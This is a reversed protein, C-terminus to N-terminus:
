SLTLNDSPGMLGSNLLENTQSIGIMDIRTDVKVASTPVSIGAGLSLNWSPVEATPAFKDSNDDAGGGTRLVPLARTLENKLIESDAYARIVSMRGYDALAGSVSRKFDNYVYFMKVSIMVGVEASNVTITPFLTEGFEDQRSSLLNYIISFMQANRNEREDYAELSIPRELSGDVVSPVIAQADGRSRLKSTLVARPNTALLGGMVGADVSHAEVALGFDNVITKLLSEMNTAVNVLMQGDASELSESAIALSGIKEDNMSRSASIQGIQAALEGVPNAALDKRSNLLNQVPM